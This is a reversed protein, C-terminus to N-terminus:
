LGRLTTSTTLTLAFTAKNLGDGPPFQVPASIVQRDTEPHSHQTLRPSLSRIVDAQLDELAALYDAGADVAGVILFSLPLAVSASVRKPEGAEPKAPQIVILPFAAAEGIIQDAWGSAVNQGADTFYGGSVSIAKLQSEIRLRAETIPNSM